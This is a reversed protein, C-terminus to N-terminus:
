DVITEDAVEKEVREKLTRVTETLLNRTKKVTAQKLETQWSERVNKVPLVQDVDINLSSPYSNPMAETRFIGRRVIKCAERLQDKEKENLKSEILSRIRRTDSETIRVKGKFEIAPEDIGRKRFLHAPLGTIDQLYGLWDDGEINLDKGIDKLVDLTDARIKEVELRQKDDLASVSNMRVTFQNEKATPDIGLWCLHIQLVNAFGEEVAFQLRKVKRAFLVDQFSIPNAFFVSNNNDTFGLFEPPVGISGCFRKRVYDVDLVQNLQQSGSLRQVEMTDKDVLIDDEIGVPDVDNKVAGTIKDISTRKRLEQRILRMAAARDEPSMDALGTMSYVYRDPCKRLRYIVMNDEVLRLKRFMRRAPLLLSTGYPSMRNRGRIRWHVFGWPPDTAETLDKTVSGLKSLVTSTLQEIPALTFGALRGLHDEVRSIAYVPAALLSVIGGPLGDAKVSTVMGSFSDGYKGVERAIPFTHLDAQITKFLQEGIAEIEPNESEIWITRGTNADATCAEEGHVDNIRAIVDDSDCDDFERYLSFRDLSSRQMDQYLLTLPDAVSSMMLDAALKPSMRRPPQGTPTHGSLKKLNAFPNWFKM